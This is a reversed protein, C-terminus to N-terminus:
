VETQAKLGVRTAWYTVGAHERVVPADTGEHLIGRSAAEDQVALAAARMAEIGDPGSNANVVTWVQWREIANPYTAPRENSFWPSGPEAILATARFSTPPTRYVNHGPLRAALADLVADLPMESM